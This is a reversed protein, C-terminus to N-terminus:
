AFQNCLFNRVIVKGYVPTVSWWETIYKSTSINRLSQPEGGEEEISDASYYKDPNKKKM